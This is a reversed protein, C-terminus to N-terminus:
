NSTFWDVAQRSFPRHPPGAACIDDWLDAADHFTLLGLKDAVEHFTMCPVRRRATVADIDHSVRPFKRARDDECRYHLWTGTPFDQLSGEHVVSWGAEQCDDVMHSVGLQLSAWGKGRSGSMHKTLIVNAQPVGLEFLGMSALFRIVWHHIEKGDRRITTWTGNNTRSIVCVQDPGYKMCALVLTAWAGETTAKYIEDGDYKVSSRTSLVGGVDFCIRGEPPPPGHPPTPRLPAGRGSSSSGGFGSRGRRGSRDRTPKGAKGDFARSM